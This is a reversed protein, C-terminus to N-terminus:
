WVWAEDFGARMARNELEDGIKHLVADIDDQTLGYTAAVRMTESSYDSLHEAVCALQVLLEAKALRKRRTKSTEAIVSEIDEPLEWRRGSRPDIRVDHEVDLAHHGCHCVRKTTKVDSM